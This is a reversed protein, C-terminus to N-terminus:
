YAAELCELEGVLNRGHAMECEKGGTEYAKGYENQRLGLGVGLGYEGGLM